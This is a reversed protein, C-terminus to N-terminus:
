KPTPHSTSKPPVRQSSRNLRIHRSHLRPNLHRTRHPFPPGLRLRRPSRHHHQLAHRQNHPDSSTTNEILSPLLHPPTMKYHM